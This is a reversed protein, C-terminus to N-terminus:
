DDDGEVSQLSGGSYLTSNQLFTGRWSFQDLFIQNFEHDELYLDIKNHVELMDLLRRYEKDFKEPKQPQIPRGNDGGEVAWSRLKTAYEKMKEQWGELQKAYEEKHAEYHKNLTEVALAKAVTIKM